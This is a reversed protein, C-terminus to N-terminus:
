NSSFQYRGTGVMLRLVQEGDTRQQCRAGSVQGCGAVSLEARMDDGCHIRCSGVIVAAGRGSESDSQAGMSQPLLLPLHVDAVVHAPVTLNLELKEGGVLQWHVSAEGRTIGGSGVLRLAAPAPKVVLKRWGGMSSVEGRQSVDGRLLALPRTDVGLGGVAAALFRNVGGGFMIHNRSSDGETETRTGDWTEWLTTAAQSIMYGFSPYSTETLIELAVADLGHAHLVEFIFTTGFIGVDLHSGSGWRQAPPAATSGLLPPSLSSRAVLLAPTSANRDRISAVLMGLTDNMYEEPVAGLHLAFMNSAQSGSDYCCRVQGAVNSSSASAAASQGNFFQRHYSKQNSLFRKLYHAADDTRGVAQAIEAMYSLCLTHTFAAVSGSPTSYQQLKPPIWDGRAGLLLLGTSEDVLKELYQMFSQLSDWLEALAPVARDGYHLLLARAVQVYAIQWDVTGPNSGYPSTTFPVVDPVSGNFWSAVSSANRCAAQAVAGHASDCSCPKDHNTIPQVSCGKRQNDRILRLFNTHFAESDYFTALSSASLGGDAMWGRKERQPCDTPISWLQSVHSALTANFIQQLLRAREPVAAKRDSRALPEGFHVKTLPRLDSNVRHATLAAGFPAAALAVEFSNNGHRVLESVTVQAFRFGHYTMSPTYKIVERVERAPVTVSSDIEFVFGETQNACQGWKHEYWDSMNCTKSDAKQGVGPYYNNYPIGAADETETHKVRVILTTTGVRLGRHMALLATRITSPELNLTTYGAMNLGFDFLVSDNHDVTSQAEYSEVVRIGPMLQPFMSGAVPHVAVAATHGAPYREMPKSEDIWGAPGGAAEQRSDYIEGQWLHDYVIAGHRSKWEGSNADSRLTLESGDALTAVLLLRFCRSSDGSQDGLASRNVFMDLYGYKSNGLRAGVANLTGSHLLQTVNFGAYLVKEDWVAQGADMLHDGVKEGNVFLEFAGLGAAYARARVIPSASSLRWDTRLESGGGIWDSGAWAAADPAVDFRMAPSWAASLGASDSLRVRFAYSADGVFQATAASPLTLSTANQGFASGSTTWVVPPCRAPRPPRRGGGDKAAPFESWEDVLEVEVVGGVDWSLVFPGDRPFPSFPADRSTLGNIALEVAAAAAAGGAAAHHCLTAFCLLAVLQLQLSM